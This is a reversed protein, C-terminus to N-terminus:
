AQGQGQEQGERNELVDAVRRLLKILDTKVMSPTFPINNRQDGFIVVWYMDEEPIELDMFGSVRRIRSEIEEQTMQIGRAVRPRM